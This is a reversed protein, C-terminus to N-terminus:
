IPKMLMELAWAVVGSVVVVAAVSTAIRTKMKQFDERLRVLDEVTSDLIMRHNRLDHRIEQVERTLTGRERETPMEFKGICHM